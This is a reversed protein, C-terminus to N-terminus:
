VWRSLAMETSLFDKTGTPGSIDLTIPGENSEVTLSFRLFPNCAREIQMCDSVLVLDHVASGLRVSFGAETESVHKISDLVMPLTKVRLEAAEAEPFVRKPDVRQM